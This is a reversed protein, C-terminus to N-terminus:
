RRRSAFCEIDAACQDNLLYGLRAVDKIGFFTNNLKEALFFRPGVRKTYIVKVYRSERSFFPDAEFSLERKGGRLETGMATSSISVNGYARLGSYARSGNLYRLECAFFGEADTVNKFLMFLRVLFKTRDVKVIWRNTTLIYVFARVLQLTGLQIAFAPILLMSIAKSRNALLGPIAREAATLEYIGHWVLFLGFFLSVYTIWTTTCYLSSLWGPTGIWLVREGETLKPTVGSADVLDKPPDFISLGREIM